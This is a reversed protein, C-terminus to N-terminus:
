RARFHVVVSLFLIIAGNVIFAYQVLCIYESQLLAAPIIAAVFQIITNNLEGGWATIARVFPVSLCVLVGSFIMAWSMQYDMHPLIREIDFGALCISLVAASPVVLRAIKWFDKLVEQSRVTRLEESIGAYRALAEAGVVGAIFVIVARLQLSFTFKAADVSSGSKLAYDFCLVFFMSAALGSILFQFLNGLNPSPYACGRLSVKISWTNLCSSMIASLCLPLFLAAPGFRLSFVLGIAVGILNFLGARIAVVRALGLAQMYGNITQTISSTLAVCFFALSIGPDIDQVRGVAWLVAGIGAAVGLFLPLFVSKAPSSSTKVLSSLATLYGPYGFIQSASLIIAYGLGVLAYSESTM